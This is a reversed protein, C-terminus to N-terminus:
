RGIRRMVYVREMATGARDRWTLTATWSSDSMRRWTFANTAAGRPKFHVSASDLATVVYGRASDGSTVTRGRLRIWGSDSVQRGLSDAYEWKGITSDDQFRYREFFPMTDALTGRWHGELWTLSRFQEVTVPMPEPEELRAAPSTTDVSPEDERRCGTLLAFVLLCVRSSM